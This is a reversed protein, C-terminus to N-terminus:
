APTNFTVRFDQAQEFSNAPGLVDPGTGATLISVGSGGGVDGVQGACLSRVMRIINVQDRYNGARVTVSVRDTARVVGSRNLTLREISSVLRVLLAPLAVNDPLQGAKIREIPVIAILGDDARLLAGIIDVGTM